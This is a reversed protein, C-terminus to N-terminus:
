GGEPTSAPPCTDAAGGLDADLCDASALVAARVAATRDLLATAAATVPVGVRDDAAALRYVHDLTSLEIRELLVDLAPRGTRGATAAVEARLQEAPVQM